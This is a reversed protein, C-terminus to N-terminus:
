LKGFLAETKQHHDAWPIALSLFAPPACRGQRLCNKTWGLAHAIAATQQRDHGALIHGAVVARDVTHGAVIWGERDYTPNGCAAALADSIQQPSLGKSNRFIHDRGTLSRKNAQV